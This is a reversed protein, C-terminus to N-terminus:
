PGRLTVVEFDAAGGSQNELRYEGSGFYVNVTGDNGQTTGFHTGSQALIAVGQGDGQFEVLAALDNTEDIVAGIGHVESGGFLQTFNTDALQSVSDYHLRSLLTNVDAGLEARAFYGDPHQGGQAM